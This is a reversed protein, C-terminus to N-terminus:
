STLFGSDGYVGLDELLSTLILIAKRGYNIQTPSGEGWFLFPLLARSPSGSELLGLTWPCELLGLTWPCLVQCLLEASNAARGFFLCVHADDLSDHACDFGPM